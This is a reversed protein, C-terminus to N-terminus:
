DGGSANSQATLRQRNTGDEADCRGSSGVRGAICYTALIACNDFNFSFLGTQLKCCALCEQREKREKKKKKSVERDRRQVEVEGIERAAEDGCGEGRGGGETPISRPVEWLAM